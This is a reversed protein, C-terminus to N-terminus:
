LLAGVIGLIAGSVFLDTSLNRLSRLLLLAALPLILAAFWYFPAHITLLFSCLLLGSVAGMLLRHTATLLDIKPSSVYRQWPDFGGEPKIPQNTFHIAIPQQSQPDKM